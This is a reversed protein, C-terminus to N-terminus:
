LVNLPQQDLQDRHNVLQQTLLDLQQHDKPVQFHLVVSHSKFLHSLHVLLLELKLRFHQLAHLRHSDLQEQPVLQSTVKEKHTTTAVVQLKITQHFLLLQTPQLQLLQHTVEKLVQPAKSVEQDAAM